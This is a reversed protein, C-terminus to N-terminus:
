WFISLLPQIGEVNLFLCLCVGSLDIVLIINIMYMEISDMYYYLICVNQYHLDSTVSFIVIVYKSELEPVHYFCAATANVMTVSLFM